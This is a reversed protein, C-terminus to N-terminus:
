LPFFIETLKWGLGRRRLIFRVEDNTGEDTTTVSFKNLSEYQMKSNAFPNSQQTDASSEQESDPTSGNIMEAVGIPTVFSDIMEDVMVGGLVAGLAAFPNDDEVQNAAEQAAMMNFQDKMNQRLYIFDVHEAVAEGNQNSAASKLQFITIYPSAFIYSAILAALIIPITLIRKM